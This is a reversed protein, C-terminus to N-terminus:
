HLYENVHLVSCPQVCYQSMCKVRCRQLLSANPVLCRMEVNCLRASNTVGHLKRVWMPLQAVPLLADHLWLQHFCHGLEYSRISLDEQLRIHM